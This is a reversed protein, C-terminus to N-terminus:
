TGSPKQAHRAVIPQRPDPVSVLLRRPRLGSRRRREVAALYDEVDADTEVTKNAIM